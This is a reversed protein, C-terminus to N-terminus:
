VTIEKNYFIFKNSDIQEYDYIALLTDTLINLFEGVVKPNIEIMVKDNDTLYEELKDKLEILVLSEVRKSAYKNKTYRELKKQKLYNMTLSM